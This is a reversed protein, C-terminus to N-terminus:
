VHNRLMLEIPHPNLYHQRALYREDYKRVFHKILTIPVVLPVFGKRYTEIVELLEQKEDPSIAKKFYGLMHLLVDTNKKPTSLLKLAKMLHDSYERHLREPQYRKANAVIVGLLRYHAASHSLILLKHETHFSVLDRIRGGRRQFEKWRKFVFAREIFNERLSSSQLRGEDEVPLNPFREMFAGAFIGVGTRSPVGSPNYVKVGRMGSSPSGSKFIFGCLDEKELESLRKEAWRRMGDTHDVRTLSTMLRPGAAARVLRMAERPVSLGYEVEPCVPVWDVHRGLTERIYHDLKHGGDYRVRDGLLCSSIGLKLKEM